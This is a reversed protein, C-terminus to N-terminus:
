VDFAGLSCPAAGNVLPLMWDSMVEAHAAVGAAHEYYTSIPLLPLVGESSRVKGRGPAPVTAGHLLQIGRSVATLGPDIALKSFV